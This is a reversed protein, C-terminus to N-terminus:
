ARPKKDGGNAEVMFDVLRACLDEAEKSLKWDDRRRMEEVAAYCFEVKKSVTGSKTGLGYGPLSKDLYDGLGVGAGQYGTATIKNLLHEPVERGAVTRVAALVAEVPLLNEIEKDNLLAFKMGLEREFDQKRTGKAANDGDLVLFNNASISSARIRKGLEEAAEDFRWHVVCAGGVEALVYHTDEKLPAPPSRSALYKRLFERLYLRDTVGEVWVIANALYMSSARAGLSRLVRSDRDEVRRIRFESLALNPRFLYTSCSGFDAAVDLLHNSHTTLFVQHHRFRESRFSEVLRRQMGPHLHIEPEEVFFLSRKESTFMPFTVSIISQMGDGLDYIPKEVSGVVVHVVDSKGKPILQVSAGDFFEKSLFDEYEKVRERHERDGLLLDKLHGYLGLGTFTDRRADLPLAYDKLTREKYFDRGPELERLGRLIPVYVHPEDGVEVVLGELLQLCKKAEEAILRHAAKLDHAHGPYGGKVQANFSKNDIISVLKTRASELFDVGPPLLNQEPIVDSLMGRQINGFGIVNPPIQDSIRSQVRDMAARIDALPFGSPLHKFADLRFLGRMFRSKGANNPGVFVNVQGLGFLAKRTGDHFDTSYPKLEEVDEYSIEEYHQAMDM